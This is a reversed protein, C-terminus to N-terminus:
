IWEIKNKCPINYCLWCCATNFSRSHGKFKIRKKFIIISLKDNFKNFLNARFPTELTSLPLLLCFSKVLGKEILKFTHDLVNNQINFPPNSILLDCDIPPKTKFFDQSFFDYIHSAYFNLNLENGIICFESDFNDFPFWVSKYLRIDIFDFIQRVIHQPTAVHNLDFLKSKEYKMLNIVNKEELYYNNKM